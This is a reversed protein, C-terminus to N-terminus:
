GITEELAKLYNKRESNAKGDLVSCVILVVFLVVIASDFIIGGLTNKCANFMIYILITEVALFVYGLIKLVTNTVFLGKGFKLEKGKKVKSYNVIALIGFVLGYVASILVPIYAVLAMPLFLVLVIAVGLGEWGEYAGVIAGSKVVFLFAFFLVISLVACVLNLIGSRLLNKLKKVTNEM